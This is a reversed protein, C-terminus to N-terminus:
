FGQLKRRHYKNPMLGILHEAALGCGAGVALPLDNILDPANYNAHTIDRINSATGCLVVSIIQNGYHLLQLTGLEIVIMTVQVANLRLIHARINAAKADVGKCKRSANKGLM